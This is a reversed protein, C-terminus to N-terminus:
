SLRFLLSTWAKPTWERIAARKRRIPRTTSCIGTTPTSYITARWCSQGSNKTASAPKGAALNRGEDGVPRRRGKALHARGAPAGGLRLVRGQDDRVFGPLDALHQAGGPRLTQGTEVGEERRLRGLRIERSVADTGRGYGFKLFKLYDHVENAHDEIHSFLNFTRQRDYTVPAFNWEKM